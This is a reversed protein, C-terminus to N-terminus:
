HMKTSRRDPGIRNKNETRFRRISKALAAVCIFHLSNIVTCSISRLDGFKAVSGFEYLLLRVFFGFINVTLRFDVSFFTTKVPKIISYYGYKQCM